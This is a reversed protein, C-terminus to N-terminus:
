RYERVCANPSVELVDATAELWTEISHSPAGYSHTADARTWVGDRESM